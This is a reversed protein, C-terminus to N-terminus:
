ALSRACQRIKGLLNLIRVFIYRVLVSFCLYESMRTVCPLLFFDIELLFVGVNVMIIIVNVNFIGVTYLRMCAVLQVDEAAAQVAVACDTRAVEVGVTRGEPAVLEVQGELVGIAPFVQGLLDPPVGVLLLRHRHYHARRFAVALEEQRGVRKEVDLVEGPRTRQGVVEEVEVAVALVLEVPQVGPPRAVSHEVLVAVEAARGPM